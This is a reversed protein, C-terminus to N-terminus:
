YSVNKLLINKEISPLHKEVIMFKIFLIMMKIQNFTSDIDKETMDLKSVKLIEKKIIIREFFIKRFDYFDEIKFCKKISGITIFKDHFFNHYVSSIITYDPKDDVSTEDSKFNVL